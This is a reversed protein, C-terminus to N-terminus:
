IVFDARNWNQLRDREEWVFPLPTNALPPEDAAQPIWEAEEPIEPNASLTSDLSSDLSTDWWAHESLAHDSEADPLDALNPDALNATRQDANWLEASDVPKNDVPKEALWDAITFDVNESLQAPDFHEASELKHIQLNLSDKQSKSLRNSPHLRRLLEITAIGAGVSVVIAGGIYRIAADRNEREFVWSPQNGLLGPAQLWAPTSQGSIFPLTLMSFTGSAVLVAPLVVNRIRFQNM